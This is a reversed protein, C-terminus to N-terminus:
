ASCSFYLFKFLSRVLDLRQIDYLMHDDADIAFPVCCIQTVKLVLDTIYASGDDPSAFRFSCYYVTIM